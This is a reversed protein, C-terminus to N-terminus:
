PKGELARKLNDILAHTHELYRNLEGPKFPMLEAIDCRYEVVQKAADFIGQCYETSNM